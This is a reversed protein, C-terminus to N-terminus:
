LFDANAGSHSTRPNDRRARAHARKIAGRNAKGLEETVETRARPLLQEQAQELSIGREQALRLGSLMTKWDIADVIDQSTPTPLPHENAYAALIKLVIARVPAHDLLEPNALIERSSFPYEKAGAPSNAAVSERAKMLMATISNEPVPTRRNRPTAMVEGGIAASHDQRRRRRQIVKRVHREWAELAARKESLREYRDYHRGHTDDHRHALVALRDERPIRLRAMGTAVSRRLDHPTPPNAKLRAGAGNSTDLGDILRRMAQSMSHRALRERDVFKSAFVFERGDQLEAAIIEKALPPLPIVHARRAKMREAPIEWRPGDADDIHDLESRAMGAIEGPRQGLLVLVRLAAITGPALGAGDLAHWFTKLEDDALTRDKGEGEAHPKKVGIMPNAALLHSDVAWGFMKALVSRLRNATVPSRAVVEFLLQAADAKTISAASRKGWVPVANARLYGQDNRWSAKQPKAYREIYLDALAEFILATAAAQRRARKDAQPDAGARVQARIQAAEARAQALSM